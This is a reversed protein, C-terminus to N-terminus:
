AWVRVVAVGKHAAERLTGPMQAREENGYLAAVNAGVFRFPRGAVVFRGGRTRVFADAPAGTNSGGRFFFFAAGVVLALAAIVFVKKPMLLLELQRGRERSDNHEAIM